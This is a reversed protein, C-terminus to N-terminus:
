CRGKLLRWLESKDALVLFGPKAKAAPCRNREGLCFNEVCMEGVQAVEQHFRQLAISAGITGATSNRAHIRNVFLAIGTPARNKRPRIRPIASKALPTPLSFLRFESWRTLVRGFPNVGDVGVIFITPQDFLHVFFRQIRGNFFEASHERPGIQSTVIMAHAEAV